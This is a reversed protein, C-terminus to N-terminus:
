VDMHGHNNERGNPLRKSAREYCKKHGIRIRSSRSIVHHLKPKNFVPITISIEIEDIIESLTDISRNVSRGKNYFYWIKIAHFGDHRLNITTKWLGELRVPCEIHVVNKLTPYKSNPLFTRYTWRFRWYPSKAEWWINLISKTVDQNHSLLRSIFLHTILNM